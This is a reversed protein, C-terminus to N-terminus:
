HGRAARKEALIDGIIESLGRTPRFGITRHLKSVDPLRREMDEFGEPYVQDYSITRIESRSGTRAIVQEALGRITVEQDNGVNFVQGVAEPCSMLRIM